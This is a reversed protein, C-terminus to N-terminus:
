LKRCFLLQLKVTMEAPFQLSINTHTFKKQPKASIYGFNCMEMSPTFQYVKDLSFFPEKNCPVMFTKVDMSVKWQVLNKITPFFFNNLNNFHEECTTRYFSNVSLFPIM